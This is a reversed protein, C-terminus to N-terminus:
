SFGRASTISKLKVSFSDRFDIWNNEGKLKVVDNKKKDSTEKNAQIDLQSKTWAKAFNNAHDRLILEIDPVTHLSFISHRFYYLCGVMRKILGPNYYVRMNANSATAFTKNLNEMYREFEKPGTVEYYEVLDQMNQFGDAIIHARQRVNLGLRDM